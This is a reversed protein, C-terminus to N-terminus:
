IQAKVGLWGRSLRFCQMNGNYQSPINTITLTGGGSKADQAVISGVVAMGLVLTLVLIVSLFLKKNM